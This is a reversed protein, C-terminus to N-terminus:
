ESLARDLEHRWTQEDIAGSIIKRNIFYTPTADLGMSVAEAYDQEVKLEASGNIYCAEFEDARLGLQDALDTFYNKPDAIYSWNTQYKYLLSAYGWFDFQEQACRAATASPLANAHISSLPFDNWIFMVRDQYESMIKELVQESVRCASCQFDSYIRVKVKAEAPGKVPNGDDKFVINSDMNSGAQGSGSVIVWILGAIILVGLGLSGILFVQRMKDTKDMPM